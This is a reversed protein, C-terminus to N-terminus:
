IETDAPRVDALARSVTLAYVRAAGANKLIRTCETLTSGTTFVDDILLIRRGKVASPDRVSFAGKVNQLREERSLRTQPEAWADRFLIDFRVSLKKFRGVHKALLGAQNFGRHRLRRIHLPIPVIFDARQSLGSEFAKALLDALPPVWQLQGGFKLQHIRERVVGTHLVASRACDFSFLGLSCDGCLHDPASLSKLFPRGCQPCLPSRLWPLAELCDNCWLGMSSTLRVKQCGACSMPFCFDLLSERVGKLGSALHTTFLCFVGRKRKRGEM